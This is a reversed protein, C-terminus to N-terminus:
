FNSLLWYFLKFLYLKCLLCLDSDILNMVEFILIWSHMDRQGLFQLQLAVSRQCERYITFFDTNLLSDLAMHCLLM